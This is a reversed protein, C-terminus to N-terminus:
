WLLEGKMFADAAESRPQEFFEAAPTQELLRGHHLFIVEDALRRAQGMNHTTMVITVGARHFAQIMEEIAHTAGPDLAACPEDLFLVEPRLAWARAMALRQQEGGSLVRAPRDALAELGFHRLAALAQEKRQARGIGQLALAHTINALASRRLMVPRQFVMAHRRRPTNAGAGLWTVRGKTPQLLGHCLRLTLSKGAGNPGLVMIRQGSTVELGIDTLLPKGRVAFSVAELRM